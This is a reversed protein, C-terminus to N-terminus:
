LVETTKNLVKMKGKVGFIIHETCGRFYYGMGMEPTGDKYTKIWTLLTKYEFGWSECVELGTKIFPNTVWLYLHAKDETINQIPLNIIDKNTMTPYTHENSGNGWSEKYKWPPDAYIINYKKNPLDITENMM